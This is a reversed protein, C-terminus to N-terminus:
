HPLEHVIGQGIERILEDGMSVALKGAANSAVNRLLTLASNILGRLRGADPMSSEAAHALDDGVRRLEIDQGSALGIVPSIQRIFDAFESIKARNLATGSVQSTNTGAVSFNGSADRITTKNDRIITQDRDATIDGMGTTMITVNSNAFFAGPVATRLAEDAQAASPMVDDSIIEARLEAIFEALATRIHGLIGRIVSSEVIWQMDSVYISFGTEPQSYIPKRKCEELIDADMGLLVPRDTRESQAALADLEDLPKGLRLSYNHENLVSKETELEGASQNYWESTQLIPVTVTRYAPILNRDQYGRLESKAWDGLRASGTRGGLVVCTRLLDATPVARDIVGHELVALLDPQRPTM